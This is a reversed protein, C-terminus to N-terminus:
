RLSQTTLWIVRQSLECIPRDSRFVVTGVLLWNGHLPSYASSREESQYGPTSGYKYLPRPIAPTRDRCL